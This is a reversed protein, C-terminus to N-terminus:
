CARGSRPRCAARRRRCHNRRRSCRVAPQRGCTTPGGLSRRRTPTRERGTVGTIDACVCVLKISFSLLPLCDAESIEACVRHVARYLLASCGDPGQRFPGHSSLDSDSLDSDAAALSGVRWGRSCSRGAPRRGSLLIPRPGVGTFVKNRRCFALLVEFGLNSALSTSSAPGNNISKEVLFNLALM